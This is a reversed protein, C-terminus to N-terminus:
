QSCASSLHSTDNWRILRGEEGQFELESVATNDLVLRYRYSLDLGLVVCVIAKVAGGHAVLLVKDGSHHQIVWRLFGHCRRAVDGFSEGGPPRAHVPDEFYARYEVPYYEEVQSLSLGEWKGFKMERLLPTTQIALGLFSGIIDATEQARLLDSCYICSIDQGALGRALQRAQIRGKQSLQTDTHGQILKRHNWETEGHRVLLIRTM